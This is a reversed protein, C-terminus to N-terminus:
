LNLGSKVAEGAAGTVADYVGALRSSLCADRLVLGAIVVYYGWDCVKKELGEVQGRQLRFLFFAVFGLPLMVWWRIMVGTIFMFVVYLLTLGAATLTVPGMKCGACASQDMFAEKADSLCGLATM